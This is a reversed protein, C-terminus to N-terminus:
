EEVRGNNKRRRAAYLRVNAGDRVIEGVLGAHDLIQAAAFIAEAEAESPRYVDKVLWRRDMRPPALRSKIQAQAM